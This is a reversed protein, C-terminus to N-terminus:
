YARPGLDSDLTLPDEICAAQVANLNKESDCTGLGGEPEEQIASNSAPSHRRGARALTQTGLLAGHLDVRPGSDSPESMQACRDHAERARSVAEGGARAGPEGDDARGDARLVVGDEGAGEERGRGSARRRERAGNQLAAVGGRGRAHERRDRARGHRSVRQPPAPRPSAPEERQGGGGGGGQHHFRPKHQAARGCRRGQRLARRQRGGGGRQVAAEATRLHLHTRHPARIRLSERGRRGAM